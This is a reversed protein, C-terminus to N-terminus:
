WVSLEDLLTTAKPDKPFVLFFFFFTTTPAGSGRILRSGLMGIWVSGWRVEGVLKENNKEGFGCEGM